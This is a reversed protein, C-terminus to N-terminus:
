ISIYKSFLLGNITLYLTAENPSILNHKDDNGEEFLQNFKENFEDHKMKNIVSNVQKYISKNFDNVLPNYKTTEETIEQNQKNNNKYFQIIIDFAKKYFLFYESSLKSKDPHLMLVKKKARKLDEISIDYNLDFLGLIEQLNYMHINLNHTQQNQNQNNM